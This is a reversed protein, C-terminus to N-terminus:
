GSAFVNVFFLLRLLQHLIPEYIKIIGMLDKLHCSLNYKGKGKRMKKIKASKRKIVNEYTTFRSKITM